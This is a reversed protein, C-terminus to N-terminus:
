GLVGSIFDSHLSIKLFATLSLIIGLMAISISFLAETM